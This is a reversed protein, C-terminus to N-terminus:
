APTDVSVDFRRYAWVLAPVVSIATLSLVTWAAVAFAAWARGAIFYAAAGVLAALGGCFTLILMKVAFEVMTRGITQFDAPAVATSRSPFLLFVLNELGFLLVNVPLAFAAAALLLPWYEPVFLM